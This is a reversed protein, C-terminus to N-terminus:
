PKLANLAKSVVFLHVQLLLRQGTLDTSFPEPFAASQVQVHPFVCPLSRIGTFVAVFLVRPFCRKIHPHKKTLNTM